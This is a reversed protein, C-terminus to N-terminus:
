WCGSGEGRYGSPAPQPARLNRPFRYYVELCLVNLATTLREQGPKPGPWFGGKDQSKLLADTLTENWSEWPGAGEHFSDQSRQLQAMAAHGGIARPMAQLREHQAWGAANDVMRASLAGLLRQGQWFRLTPSSDLQADTLLAPSRAELWKKVRFDRTMAFAEYFVLSLLVDALSGPKTKQKNLWRLGRHVTRKFHGYRHTNAHGLFCLLALSTMVRDDKAEPFARPASECGRWHDKTRSKNLWSLAREVAAETFRSGGREILRKRSWRDHYFDWTRMPLVRVRPKPPSAKPEKILTEEDLIIPQRLPSRLGAIFFSPKRELKVKLGLYQKHDKVKPRSYKKHAVLALLILLHIVSSIWITKSLAARHRRDAQRILKM